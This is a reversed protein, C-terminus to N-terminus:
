RELSTALEQDIYLSSVTEEDINLDKGSSQDIYLSSLLERDVYATINRLQDTYLVIDLIDNDRVNIGLLGTPSLTSLISIAFSGRLSLVSKGVINATSQLNGVGSVGLVNNALLTSNGSFNISGAIESLSSPTLTTSSSMAITSPINLRGSISVTGSSSVGTQAKLEQRAIANLTASSQCSVQGVITTVVGNATIVAGAPVDALAISVVCLSHDYTHVCPTTDWNVAISFDIDHQQYGALNTQSIRVTAREDTADRSVAVLGTAGTPKALGNDEIKAKITSGEAVAKHRVYGILLGKTHDTPTLSVSSAKKFTNETHVQRAASWSFAYERMANLRLAFIRSAYHDNTGLEDDKGQLAFKHPATNNLTYVRSLITTANEGTDEGEHSFYPNEDSNHKIRYLYNSTTSDVQVTPNAIVLWDDNNNDPTFTVSAYDSFSTGHSTPSSSDDDENFFYDKNETLSDLPIAMLTISDAQTNTGKFQFKIDEPTAPQTFKAMYGYVDSPESTDHSEVIKNSGVFDTSGHITKFYNLTSTSTKNGVNASCLLLYATNGVFDSAPITAADEWSSAFVTTKLDTEIITPISLVAGGVGINAKASMTQVAKSSLSASGSISASVYWTFSGTASATASCSINTSGGNAIRGITGLTASSSMAVSVLSYAIGNASLTASSSISSTVAIDNKAIASLTASSSIAAKGSISVLGSSSITASSSLATAGSKVVAGSASLTAASSIASIGTVVGVMNGSLTATSSLSAKGLRSVYGNASLTAPGSVLSAGQKIVLGNTSLTATSSIAVAASLIGAINSTLTTSGTVAITGYHLQTLNSVLTASASLASAGLPGSSLVGNAALTADVLMGEDTDFGNGFSNDFPGIGVKGYVTAM